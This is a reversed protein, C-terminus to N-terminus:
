LRSNKLTSEVIKKLKQFDLSANGILFGNLYPVNALIKSNTPNVSGGYLLTAEPMHKALWVFLKKLSTIDPQQGTGIAWVPEYAVILQNYRCNQKKCLEIILALQKELIKETQQADREQATEGICIIPTINNNFLCAVKDAICQESEKCHTRRESHGVICYRCGIQALSTADVQGTYAGSEHASCNQAGLALSNSKLITALPALAPYSPCIIIRNNENTLSDLHQKHQNCFDISQHFTKNMKWNAVFYFPKSKEM